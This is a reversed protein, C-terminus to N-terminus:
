SLNFKEPHKAVRGRYFEEIHVFDKEFDGTPYVFEGIGVVKKKYDLIGLGIPINAKDAIYYFGRKWKPSLKRTAEPAITIYLSESKDFLDAIYNVLNNKRGRDVPIGGLGSILGKLPFVFMEKKILFKVPVGLTFYAIRGYFFDWMSTHPAVIVVCKTVEEPFEGVVKWNIIKFILKALFKIM